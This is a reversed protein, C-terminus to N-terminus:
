SKKYLDLGAKGSILSFVERVQEFGVRLLFNSDRGYSKAGLVFFNPEPNRLTDAGQSTQKLCDQGRQGALAAALKMPGASAYCEHVQLERYLDSDPTYGVNAVIRDVEKHFPKGASRASVRFGKDPGASEIADIATQPHFEVNGDVRTALTNARVALRDRERLPDDAVRRIPLTSAGRAVWIVWTDPHKEALRALNSVTTAASYGSGVVLINRGAYVNRREGLVDELGYAIHPEAALEGIAPIGGDGLWCHKGYTGTCDLVADAEEIREKQNGERVLLRFPQRSRRADGPDDGKLTNQRGISLVQTGAHLCSRLAEVKALPELYAAVHEKGTICAGDAPFEHRSNPAKIAARGLPTTNMGFPTFLQVHGWRQWHEGVRGREFIKVPLDLHRAYLAAELGIPGAGLVALRPLDTKPM